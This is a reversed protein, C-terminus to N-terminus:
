VPFESLSSELSNVQPSPCQSLVGMGASGSPSGTGVLVQPFMRSNYASIGSVRGSLAVMSHSPNWYIEGTSDQQHNMLLPSLSVHVPPLRDMSVDGLSM